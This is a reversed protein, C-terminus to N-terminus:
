LLRGQQPQTDRSRAPDRDANGRQDRGTRGCTRFHNRGTNVDVPMTKLNKSKVFNIPKGCKSCTAM